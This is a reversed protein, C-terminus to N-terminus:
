RSHRRGLRCALTSAASVSMGLVAWVLDSRLHRLSRPISRLMVRSTATDLPMNSITCCARLLAAPLYTWRVASTCLLSSYQHFITKLRIM